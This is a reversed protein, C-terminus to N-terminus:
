VEPAPTKRISWDLDLRVYQYLHNGDIYVWDLYGDPMSEFAEASAARHVVVTGAPIELEFRALVSEYREDMEAQGAARGGYM